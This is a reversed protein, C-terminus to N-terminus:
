TYLVRERIREYSVLIQYPVPFKKQPHRLPKRSNENKMHMGSSLDESRLGAKIQSLIEHFSRKTYCKETLSLILFCLFVFYTFTM